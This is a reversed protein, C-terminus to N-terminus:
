NYQNTLLKEVQTSQQVRGREQGSGSGSKAGQVEVTGGESEEVDGGNGEEECGGGDGEKEM